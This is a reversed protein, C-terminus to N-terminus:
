GLLAASDLFFVIRRKQEASMDQKNTLLMELNNKATNVDRATYGEPLDLLERLEENNYDDIDLNISAM